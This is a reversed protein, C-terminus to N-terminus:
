QLLPNNYNTKLLTNCHKIVTAYQADTLVNFDTDDINYEEILTIYNEVLWHRIPASEDYIGMRLRNIFTNINEVLSSTLGNVIFTKENETM